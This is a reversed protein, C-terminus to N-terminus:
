CWSSLVVPCISIGCPCITHHGGRHVVSESQSLFVAEYNEEQPGAIERRLNASAISRVTRTPSISIVSSRSEDVEALLGLAYYLYRLDAM